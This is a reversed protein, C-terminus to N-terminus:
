HERPLLLKFIRMEWLEDTAPDFILKTYAIKNPLEELVTLERSSSSSAYIKDSEFMHKIRNVIALNKIKRIEETGSNKKLFECNLVINEESIINALSGYSEMVDHLESLDLNVKRISLSINKVPDVWNIRNTSSKFDHYKLDLIEFVQNEVLITKWAEEGSKEIFKLNLNEKSIFHVSLKKSSNETTQCLSSVGVSNFSRTAGESCMLLILPFM